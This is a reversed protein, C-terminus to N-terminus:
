GVCTFARSFAKVQSTRLDLVIVIHARIRDGSGNALMDNASVKEVNKNLVYADRGRGVFDSSTVITRKVRVVFRGDHEHVWRTGFFTVTHILGSCPNVDDFSIIFQDQVPASAAEMGVSGNVDNSEVLGEGCGINTLALVFGVIWHSGKM